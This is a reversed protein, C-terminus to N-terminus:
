PDKHCGRRDGSPGSKKYPGPREKGDRSYMVVREPAKAALEMVKDRPFFIRARERDMTMGANELMKLTDDLGTEYTFGIKELIDLSAEHITKVQEESLPRYQGGSLGKSNM